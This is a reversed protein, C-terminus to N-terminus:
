IKQARRYERWLSYLGAAVILAIGAATTVTPVANYIVWGFFIGWIIQTYHFPAVVAAVPAIAFGFSVLVIGVVIFPGHFAFYYADKMEFPIFSGSVTMM